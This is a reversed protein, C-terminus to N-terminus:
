FFVYRFYLVYGFLLVLSDGDINNILDLVFKNYGM